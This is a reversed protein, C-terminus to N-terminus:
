QGIQRYRGQLYTLPDDSSIQIRLVNGLYITHTGSVLRDAISCAFANADKLLVWDEEEHSLDIGEFRDNVTADHSGSFREAVYPHRYSLINLCFVGNASVAAAIRSASRLCVLLQPPDASVSSFASVTAGHRGAKGNTTVVAVSSAVQRMGKIFLDRSVVDPIPRIDTM